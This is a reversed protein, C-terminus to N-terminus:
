KRRRGKVGFRVKRVLRVASGQEAQKAVEGIAKRIKRVSEM